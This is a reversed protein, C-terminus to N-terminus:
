QIYYLKTRSAKKYLSILTYDVSSYLTTLNVRLGYIGGMCADLESLFWLISLLVMAWGMGLANARKTANFTSNLINIQIRHLNANFGVVTERWKASLCLVGM